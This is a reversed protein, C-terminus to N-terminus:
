ELMDRHNESRWKLFIALLPCFILVSYIVGQVIQSQYILLGDGLLHQHVILWYMLIYVPLQIGVISTYNKCLRSVLTTVLTLSIAIVYMLVTTVLILQIFTLDYWYLFGLFSNINSHLFMGTNNASYLCYYVILLGTTIIMTALLGAALKLKFLRRGVKSSYQLSILNHKYDKIFIPAIMFMVSLLVTILVSQSFRHFNDGVLDPFIAHVTGSEVVQNIRLSQSETAGQWIHSEYDNITQERQEIIWERAPVEWFLDIGQEFVLQNHIENFSADRIDMTQFNALSKVGLVSLDSNSQIWDDAKSLEQQYVTKFDTFEHDDLELGYNEIMEVSIRYTDTAPRGNPFYTLEFEIFLFYMLLNILILMVLM